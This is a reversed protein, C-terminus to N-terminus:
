RPLPCWDTFQSRADGGAGAAALDRYMAQAAPCSGRMLLAGVERGGVTTLQTRLDRTIASRRGVARNAEALSAIASRTDRRGLAAMGAANAARARSEDAASVTRGTSPTDDDETTAAPPGADVAATAGGSAGGSSSAGGGSAGGGSAGGSSSGGTTATTPMMPIMPATPIVTMGTTPATGYVNTAVTTTTGDGRGFIFFALGGVAGVLM